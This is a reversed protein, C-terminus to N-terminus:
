GFAKRWSLNGSLIEWLKKAEQGNIKSGQPLAREWQEPTTEALWEGARSFKVEGAQRWQAALGEAVVRPINLMRLAVAEKTRVGHYVMAPLLSLTGWDVEDEGAFAIKQVARLGWPIMNTLVGYIHQTCTLLDGNYEERAIQVLSAGNVWRNVIRAVRLPSFEGDEYTGLKVEPIRSLTEIVEVLTDSTEEGDPFLRDPLWDGSIGRGFWKEWVVDVSPSSFGTGDALRAFGKITSGKKKELYDLYARTLNILDHAKEPNEKRLESYVFSARLVGELDQRVYELDNVALTHLIYQLFDSLVLQERILGTSFKIEGYKEIIEM